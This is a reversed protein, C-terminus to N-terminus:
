EVDPDLEQALLQVANLGALTKGAGPVGTIVILKKVGRLRADRVSTAVAKQTTELNDTGARSYALDKVDHDRYIASAAQVITPVPFYRSNNWEGADIPTSKGGWMSHSRVMTDSFEIPSVAAGQHESTVDLPISTKFAGVAIPIATRHRSAEHFDVLNLAYEQAQQLAARASASSGGKYEIVYIMDDALLVCDVRQGVIPLVYEFLIPWRTASPLLDLLQHFSTQLEAIERQWSFTTLATTDFGERALGSTLKGLLQEPNIDLFDRLPDIYLAPM